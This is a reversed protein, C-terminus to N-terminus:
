LGALRRQIEEAVHEPSRGVTDVAFHACARYHPERDRLLQEVEARGGVTLTPRREATTADGELRDWLTSPDATLWVAIGGARILERNAPRLIVGGGTAIVLREMGCLEALLLSERERFGAEGESAFIQRVSLGARTELLADADSWAWGLREALLRAVTSKGTGRYGILFVRSATLESM